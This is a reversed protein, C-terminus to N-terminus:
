RADAVQTRDLQALQKVLPEAKALFQRRYRRPIPKAPLRKVKLPDRHVGHIRFEFHLHPGTALGTHGVRGIIQGQRVHDGKRLGRAFRSLHGYVTTRDGAHQIFIVNGYGGKRGVFTVRGKGAAKVPTGEPAAYDVGKHSRWRKLIPHWRKLTFRSSIRSYKVPTMLFPKRLSKGDPTYYDAHGDADEFRIARFHRGHNVFEAALIPGDAYHKNDLLREEYIVSFRDGPRIERAFDIDWGFIRILRMTLNDSLGAEKAAEFLSSHIVGVGQRTRTTLPHEIRRASLGGTTREVRLSHAPDMALALSLFRGNADESLELKQGPRIHALAKAATGSHVIRHLLAPKLGWASFISALSEGEAIEHTRVRRRALAKGPPAATSTPTTTAPPSPGTAPAPAPIAASRGPLPGGKPLPAVSPSSPAAENSAAPLPLIALTDTPSSPARASKVRLAAYLAGAALVLAMAPILIRKRSRRGRLNLHRDDTLKLDRM